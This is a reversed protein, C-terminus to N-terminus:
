ATNAPRYRRSREPRAQPISKGPTLAVKIRASKNAHASQPQRTNKASRTKAPQAGDRIIDAIQEETWFHRRTGAIHTVPITVGANRYLWSVSMRVKKSTEEIDYLQPAIM